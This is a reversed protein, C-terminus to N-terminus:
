RLASLLLLLRQAPLILLLVALLANSRANREWEMESRALSRM